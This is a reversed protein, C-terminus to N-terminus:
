YITWSWNKSWFVNWWFCSTWRWEMSAADSGDQEGLDCLPILRYTGLTLVLVPALAKWEQAGDRQFLRGNNTREARETTGELFMQLCMEKVQGKTRLCWCPQHSTSTVSSSGDIKSNFVSKATQAVSGPKAPSIPVISIQNISQNISVDGEGKKNASYSFRDTDMEPMRWLDRFSILFIFFTVLIRQYKILLEYWCYQSLM